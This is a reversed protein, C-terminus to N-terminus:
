QVLLLDPLDLRVHQGPCPRRGPPVSDYRRAVGLTANEKFFLESGDPAWVPETGTSVPWRREGVNPFPRLYVTKGAAAAVTDGEALWWNAVGFGVTELRYPADDGPTLLEEGKRNPVM